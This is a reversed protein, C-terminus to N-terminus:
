DAFPLEVDVPSCCGCIMLAIDGHCCRSLQRSDTAADAVGILCGLAFAALFRALIVVYDFLICSLRPASLPMLIM